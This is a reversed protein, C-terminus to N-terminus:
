AGYHKRLVAASAEIITLYQLSTLPAGPALEVPTPAVPVPVPTPKEPVVVPPAREVGKLAALNAPGVYGDDDHEVSRQFEMVAAETGCGFIGDAVGDAYVGVAQLDLQLQRVAESREGRVLMGEAMLDVAPRGVTYDAQELLEAGDLRRSVLGAMPKGKATVGTTKLLDAWESMDCRKVAAAWRDSLTGAGCNFTVFAMADFVHQAVAKGLFRNVAAGYEERM